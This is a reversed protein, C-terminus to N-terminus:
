NATAYQPDSQIGCIGAGSVIELKMYGQEGWSTGWSNRMLWYDMGSETGWGVVNTAHDLNTGCSTSTFVGSTYSQFVRKDAEIAVALASKALQAKMANPDNPTVNAWGTCNVGTNNSSSYKCTGDKATYPYSSESM